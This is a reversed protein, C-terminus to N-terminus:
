LLPLLVTCRVIRVETGIRRRRLKDAYQEADERTRFDGVRCIWRPSVFSPYVSLEPFVKRCQNAAATAAAKDQHANGGTYIQIRYGTAAVRHRSGISAPATHEAGETHPKAGKAATPKDAEHPKAAPKAPAISQMAAHNVAAEIAASQVLVLRGEGKGQRAIRQTFSQQASAATICLLVITLLSLRKVM